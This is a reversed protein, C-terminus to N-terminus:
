NRVNVSQSFAVRLTTLVQPLIFHQCRVPGCQVAFQDLDAGCKCGHGLLAVAQPAREGFPLPRVSLRMLTNRSVINRVMNHRRNQRQAIHAM